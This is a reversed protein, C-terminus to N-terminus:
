AIRRGHRGQTSCYAYSANRALQCSAQQIVVQGVVTGAAVALATVLKGRCANSGNRCVREQGSARRDARRSAPLPIARRFVTHHTCRSNADDRDDAGVCSALSQSRQSVLWPSRGQYGMSVYRKAPTIGYIREHCYDEPYEVVCSIAM